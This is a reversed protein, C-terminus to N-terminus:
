KKGFVEEFAQDIEEHTIFSLRGGISSFLGDMTDLENRLSEADTHEPLIDPYKDVFDRYLAVICSPAEEYKNYITGYFDSYLSFKDVNKLDMILTNTRWIKVAPRGSSETFENLKSNMVGAESKIIFNALYIESPETLVSMFKFFHLKEESTAFHFILFDDASSGEIIPIDNLVDNVVTGNNDLYVNDGSTIPLQVEPKGTDTNKTILLTSKVEDFKM